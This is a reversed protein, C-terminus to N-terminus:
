CGYFGPSHGGCMLSNTNFCSWHMNVPCNKPCSGNESYSFLYGIAVSSGGWGAKYYDFNRECAMLPVWFVAQQFFSSLPDSLVLFFILIRYM